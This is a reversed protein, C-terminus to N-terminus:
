NKKKRKKKPPTYNSGKPKGHLKDMLAMYMATISADQEGMTTKFDKEM